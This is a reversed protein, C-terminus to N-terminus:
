YLSLKALCIIRNMYKQKNREKGKTGLAVVQRSRYWTVRYYIISSQLGLRSKDGTKLITYTSLINKKKKKYDSLGVDLRNGHCPLRIPGTKLWCVCLVM